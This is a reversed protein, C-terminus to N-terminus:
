VNWNEADWLLVQKCIFFDLTTECLKRKGHMMTSLYKISLMVNMNLRWKIHKTTASNAAKIIITQLKQGHRVCIHIETHKDCDLSM